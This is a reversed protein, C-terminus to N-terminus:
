GLRARVVGLLQRVEAVRLRDALHIYLPAGLGVGAVLGVAAGLPGTGLVSVLTEATGWAVATGVLAALTLRVYTRLVHQPRSPAALRRRLLTTFVACGVLYSASYGLALGVIRAERGSLALYLVVDVALNVVNVGINVLAPTRTDQLAYFARLQFQFVSFPVLSVAYGVLVVGVFRASDVDLRVHAFVVTAVLPGLAMLLLQAPVMLVGALRLGGALDASVDDLRDESAARSMRPLMATIVSVAVIAYPLSVLLFAYTYASFGFHPYARTALKSIGVFGVQNVLVYLFVWGGLRGAHRLGMGRLDTRLRFRFGTRRLAPLLAVSQVVIGATTGAALLLTDGRPLHGPQVQGHTVTIFLLGTAIVVLNNLIPTWMPPAFSGRVNLIAGVLAGVGYFLIQPLFFRAFTTGLEAEAGTLGYARVILPAAAVALASALTLAAVTLTLLRQSYAEGDDGDRRAAQVILPVVVSTLVGGLLLEYIINPVTNAVNYADAITDGLAAAIVATRLFGTGRSLATGVAMAGGSRVVGRLGGQDESM